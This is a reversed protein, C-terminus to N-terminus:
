GLRVQYGLSGLSRLGRWPIVAWRLDGTWDDIDEIGVVEIGALPNSREYLADSVMRRANSGLSRLGRWPIVATVGGAAAGAGRQIGVVEIGALPNSGSTFVVM